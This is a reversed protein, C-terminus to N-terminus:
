PRSLVPHGGHGVDLRGPLDVRVHEVPCRFHSDGDRWGSGRGEDGKDASANHLFLAVLHKM